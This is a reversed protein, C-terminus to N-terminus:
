SWQGSQFLGTKYELPQVPDLIFHLSIRAQFSKGANAEM